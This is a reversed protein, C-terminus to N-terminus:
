DSVGTKGDHDGKANQANLYDQLILVAAITDVHEKWEEKPIRMEMLIEEAEVTTLREDWLFVPLRTKKALDDRFARAAIARAGATDDMNLPYGLVIAQADYTRILEGIRRFTPRLHTDKERFITEVPQATWGLPDSVAVGVTKTGYDLGLIRM